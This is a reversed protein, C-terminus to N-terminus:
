WRAIRAATRRRILPLEAYLETGPCATDNTDRHGDITPLRPRTGAPYRDSGESTVSVRGQPKRGYRHLKWASLRVIAAIVKRRPRRDEFTGIVAVGTSTHNFGLTHAGRVAKGPGGARGVWTRGFRDILFNYGIDSWGLSTTHYRYIGRLLGPVDDRTYSNSNVTHHVHVQQITPNYTATGTRLDPDAGWQARGRMPPKHGRRAAPRVVREAPAATTPDDALLVATLDDPRAGAVKIRVADAAGVWTLDTGDVASGEGTSPGDALPEIEQWASWRGEARTQIRFERTARDRAWTLGIMTFPTATKVLRPAAPDGGRSGDLPVDVAQLGDQGPVLRHATPPATPDGSGPPTAGAAAPEVLPIALAALALVVPAPLVHRRLHRPFFMMKIM